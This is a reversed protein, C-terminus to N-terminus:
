RSYYDRIISMLIAKDSNAHEKRIMEALIVRQECLPDNNNKIADLISIVDDWNNAHYCCDLVQQLIVNPTEDTKKGTYIIVVGCLLASIIVSSFDTIMVDTKEVTDKIDENEDFIIGAQKNKKIYEDIENRSMKGTQIAHRFTLPHPRMVIKYYPSNQKLTVFCDKYDYFTSGGYRLSTEWRPTWLIRLENQRLISRNPTRCLGPFGLYAAKLKTISSYREFQQQNSCYFMYLSNFFRTKYYTLSENFFHFGYPIYCTKAYKIVKSTHLLDPLYSEWCRQYFIYDFGQAKLGSFDEHLQRSTLINAFQYKNQFFLLERGYANLSKSTANYSPIVILWPDFQKDEMMLEYVPAEKDWVEPMQVIFGVKISTDNRKRNINLKKVARLAMFCDFEPLVYVYLWEKIKQKYNKVMFKNKKM